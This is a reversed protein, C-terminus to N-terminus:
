MNIESVAQMAYFYGVLNFFLDWIPYDCINLLMEWKQGKIWKFTKLTYEEPTNYAQSAVLSPM